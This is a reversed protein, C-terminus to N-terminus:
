RCIQDSQLVVSGIRKSSRRVVAIVSATMVKSRNVRWHTNDKPCWDVTAKKRYALGHKFLQIFFWETWKYYQPDASVAEREWDFMAGMSVCRHACGNSTPTRESRRTSTTSSRRVEGRASRVCRLGDPVDRQLREDAHLTRACGPPTMSFWHGIHLDGSPYPLM